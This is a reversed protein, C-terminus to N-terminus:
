NKVQEADENVGEVENDSNRARRKRAFECVSGVSGAHDGPGLFCVSQSITASTIHPGCQEGLVCRALFCQFLSYLITNARKSLHPHVHVVDIRGNPNREPMSLFEGSPALDRLATQSFLLVFGRSGVRCNHACLLAGLPPLFARSGISASLAVALLCASYLPFIIITNQMSRSVFCSHHSLVFDLIMAVWLCLVGFRLPPYPSSNGVVLFVFLSFPPTRSM